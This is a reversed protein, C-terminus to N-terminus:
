QKHARADTPNFVLSGGVKVGEFTFPLRRADADKHAVAQLTVALTDKLRRVELKTDIGAPLASSGRARENEYGFHHLNLVTCGFEDKLSDIYANFASVDKSSNEDLGLMSKAVTDLVILAAQRGTVRLVDRISAKFLEGTQGVVPGRGVLFWEDAEAQSVGRATIWAEVRRKAMEILGEHAGYFVMGRREPMIGLAKTQTAIGLALDLALFSKLSGSLGSMLVTARDPLLEPVLWAPEPLARRAAGNLWWTKPVAAAPAVFTESLPAVADVGADNQAYNYANAVKVALEDPPWPPQCHPNWFEVLLQLATVASVGLDRLECAVQYTRQDGNRREIAYNGQKVLDLLRDRARHISAPLDLENETEIVRRDSVTLQKLTTGIWEPARIVDLDKVIAYENGEENLSPPLLAYSGKGRTDIHKGLKSVSTPLEGILYLHRGGRPTRVEFTEVAGHEAEYAAWAERAEPNYDDIDVIGWGVTHPSFAVNYDSEAWWGDIIATDTTADHFGHASAPTKSFPKCPFVPMGAEAFAIAALHRPSKGQM